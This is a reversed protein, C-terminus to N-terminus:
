LFVGTYRLLREADTRGLDIWRDANARSWIVSDIVPGLRASPNIETVTVGKPEPARYGAYASLVRVAARIPLPRHKLLNVSVIETAGLELAAWVPAPDLIGGDSYFVGGIQQAPLFVPIACSAAIHQWTVDPSEFLRPRCTRTETAVLAYARKPTTRCMEQIWSQFTQRWRLGRWDDLSQWREILDAASCGCAIMYGNISGISAGVVLDPSFSRQLVDWVGAQYAGYMGGASLVLARKSKPSHSNM